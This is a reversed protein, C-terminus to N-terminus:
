NRTRGWGQDPHGNIGRMAEIRGTRAWRLTPPPEINLTPEDALLLVTLAAVVADREDATPEPSIMVKLGPEEDV